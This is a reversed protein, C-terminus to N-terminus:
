APSRLERGFRAEACACHSACEQEIALGDILAVAINNWRIADIM